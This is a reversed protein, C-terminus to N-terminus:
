AIKGLGKIDKTSSLPISGRVEHSGPLSGQNELRRMYNYSNSNLIFISKVDLVIKISKPLKQVFDVCLTVCPNAIFKLVDQIVIVRCPGLAM